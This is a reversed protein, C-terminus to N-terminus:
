LADCTFTAEACGAEDSGDVCRTGGNCRDVERYGGSGDACQFPCNAEDAGDLCAMRGNCREWPRYSRLGDDCLAPPCDREDSFDACEVVGDCPVADACGQFCGVEDAGDECQAFGDCVIEIPWLASDCRFACREDCRRGVDGAGPAGCLLGELEECSAEALCSRYCADPAYVRFRLSAETIEGEGYLACAQLRSALADPDGACAAALPVVLLLHRARM